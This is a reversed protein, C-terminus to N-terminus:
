LLTIKTLRIYLAKLFILIFKKYVTSRKEPYQFEIITYDKPMTFMIKIPNGQHLTSYIKNNRIM